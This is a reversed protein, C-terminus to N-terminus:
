GRIGLSAILDHHRKADVKRLYRLLRRRRAVQGLLGRRTGNDKKHTKLHETLNKISETLLAVQVEVSGTDGETRAYEAVIKEKEQKTVSM